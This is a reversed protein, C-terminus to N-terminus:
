KPPAADEKSEGFWVSLFLTKPLFHAPREHHMSWHTRLKEQINLQGNAYHLAVHQALPLVYQVYSCIYVASERSPPHLPSLLDIGLKNAIEGYFFFTSNKRKKKFFFYCLHCFEGRCKKNCKVTFRTFHQQSVFRSWRLPQMTLSM